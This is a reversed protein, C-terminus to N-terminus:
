SDMLLLIQLGAFDGREEPSNKNWEDVYYEAFYYDKEIIIGLKEKVKGFVKTIISQNM